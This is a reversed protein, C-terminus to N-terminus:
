TLENLDIKDKINFLEALQNMANMSKEQHDKIRVETVTKWQKHIRIQDHNSCCNVAVRPCLSNHKNPTLRSHFGISRLLSTKCVRSFSKFGMVLLASLILIKLIKM